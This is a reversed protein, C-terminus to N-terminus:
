PLSCLRRPLRTRLLISPRISIGGCAGDARLPFWSAHRRDRTCPRPRPLRDDRCPRTTVIPGRPSALPRRTVQARTPPPTTDTAIHRHLAVSAVVALWPRAHRSSKTPRGPQTSLSRRPGRRAAPSGPFTDRRASSPERSRRRRPPHTTPAQARRSAAGDDPQPCPAVTSTSKAGQRLYFPPALPSRGDGCASSPLGLGKRSCEVPAYSRRRLGRSLSLGALGPRPPARPSPARSPAARACVLRRGPRRLSGRGGERRRRCRRRSAAALRLAAWLRPAPRPAPGGARRRAQRPRETPDAGAVSHELRM